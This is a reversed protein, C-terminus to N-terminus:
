DWSKSGLALVRLKVVLIAPTGRDQNDDLPLLPSPPIM